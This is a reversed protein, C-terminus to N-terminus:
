VMMNLLLHVSRNQYQAVGLTSNFIWLEVILTYYYGTKNLNWMSAENVPYDIGNITITPVYSVENALSLTKVKFTLPTEWTDEVQVFSKYEFLSPLPSPTGLVSNPLAETQNSFKITSTYYGPSGMHNGVGLYVTYNVGAKINFPIGEFTHNPGLIYLESFPEGIPPKIILGITPWSFLLIGILGVAVFIIRYNDLQM